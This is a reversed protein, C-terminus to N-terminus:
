GVNIRVISDGMTGQSFEQEILLLDILRDGLQAAGSVEFRTIRDRMCCQRLRQAGFAQVCFGLVLHTFCLMGLSVPTFWGSNIISVSNRSPPLHRLFGEVTPAEATRQRVARIRNYRKKKKKTKRTRASAWTRAAAVAFRCFRAGFTM